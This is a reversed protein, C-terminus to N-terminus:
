SQGTLTLLQTNTLKQPWYSIRRINGTFPFSTGSGDRSGISLRSVIPAGSYTGHTIQQGDHYTIISSSDFATAERHYVNYTENSVQGSNASGSGNRVVYVIGSYNGSAAVYQMGIYDNASTYLAVSFAGVSFRPGPIYSEVFLTGQNQNYIQNFAQGSISSTEFVRTAQASTTPILSTLFSQQEIQAGWFYLGSSGDGQYSANTTGGNACLTLFASMSTSTTPLFTGSVRYWSNPYATITATTYGGTISSIVGTGTLYAYVNTAQGFAGTTLGIRFSDREAAKAFVSVTYYTGSTVSITQYFEHNSTTNAEIIKSATQSNDPATIANQQNTCNSDFWGTGGVGNSYLLLNSSQIEILLGKSQGTIPDYDFRPQNSNAYKIYGDKGVYTANSSRSFTVRSDLQNSRTFNIDLAPQATTRVVSTTVLSNTTPITATNEVVLGYKVIFDTQNAM